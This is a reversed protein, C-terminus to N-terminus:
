RPAAASFLTGVAGPVPECAWRSFSFACRPGHSAARLCRCRTQGRRSMRDAAPRLRSLWRDDCTSCCAVGRSEAQSYGAVDRLWTAIWLTGLSVAALQSAGHLARAGSHPIVHSTASSVCSPRLAVGAGRRRTRRFSSFLMLSVGADRRRDRSCKAGTCSRLVLELPVTACSARRAHGFRLRHWEDDGHAGASVVARIRFSSM